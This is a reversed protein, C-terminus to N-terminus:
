RRYRVTILPIEETRCAAGTIEYNFGMPGNIFDESAIVDTAGDEADPATDSIPTDPVAPPTPEPEPTPEPAPPTPETEVGCVKQGGNGNGQSGKGNGKGKGAQNNNPKCANENRGDSPHGAAGSGQETDTNADPVAADVADGTSDGAPADTSPPTPDAPPAPATPAPAKIREIESRYVESGTALFDCLARNKRGGNSFSITAYFMDREANEELVEFAAGPAIYLLDVGDHTRVLDRPVAGARILYDTDITSLDQGQHSITRVSESINIIGKSAQTKADRISVVNHVSFAGSVVVLAMGTFLLSSGLLGGRKRPLGFTKPKRETM